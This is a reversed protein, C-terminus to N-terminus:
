AKLYFRLAQKIEKIYNECKLYLEEAEKLSVEIFQITQGPCIQAIVALDVITVQAFKPYGGATQRDALLIIPNGDPPAQITGFSVAESIMELPATLKVAEGVLRYGMRDSEPTVMYPKSFFEQISKETFHQMQNGRTVRVAINEGISPIHTPAFFWATTVFGGQKSERNLQTKFKDVQAKTHLTPVIDEKILARGKFGGLGARMYTSKSGMVVPIDFGGAVALYARAGAKMMGFSLVSDKKVLVPRWMPVVEGNITPSLDGGTIAILTDAKFCLTPGMFTIELVAENEDNDLLINAIRFSYRDMVGSAIIGHKQYGTRGNDQITTMLGPSIVQISM